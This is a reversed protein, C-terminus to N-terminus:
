TVQKSATTVPKVQKYQPQNKQSLTTSYHSRNSKQDHTLDGEFSKGRFSQMNEKSKSSTLRPKQAVPQKTETESNNYVHGQTNFGIPTGSLKTKQIKGSRVM